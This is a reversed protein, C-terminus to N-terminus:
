LSLEARIFYFCIMSHTNVGKSIATLFLNTVTVLYDDRVAGKAHAVVGSANWGDTYGNDSEFPSEFTGIVTSVPKKSISSLELSVREAV